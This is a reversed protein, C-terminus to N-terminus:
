ISINSGIEIQHTQPNWTVLNDKQFASPNIEPNQLESILSCCAAAPDGSGSLSGYWYENGPYSNSDWAYQAVLLKSEDNLKDAPDRNSFHIMISNGNQPSIM